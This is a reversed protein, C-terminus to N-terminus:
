RGGVVPTPTDLGGQVPTTTPTEWTGLLVSALLVVGAVVASVSSILTFLRTDREEQPDM